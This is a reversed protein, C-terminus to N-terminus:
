GAEGEEAIEEFQLEREVIGSKEIARSQTLVGM